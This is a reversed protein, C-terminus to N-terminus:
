GVQMNIYEELIIELQDMKIPKIIYRDVMEYDKARETDEPCVSTTCIHFVIHKSFVVDKVRELFKWGDMIPMNVDLFVLDPLLESDDQHEIFYDLAEKGNEFQVIDRIKDPFNQLLRKTVIHFVKNDDILCALIRM